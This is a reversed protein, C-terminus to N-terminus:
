LKIGDLFTEIEWDSLQYYWFDMIKLQTGHAQFMRSDKICLSPKLLTSQQCTFQRTQLTKGRVARELDIIYVHPFTLDSSTIVSFLLNDSIELSLFVLDPFITRVLLGTRLDWVQVGPRYEGCSILALPPSLKCDGVFDTKILQSSKYKGELSLSGVRLSSYSGLLLINQQYDLETVPRKEEAVITQSEQGLRALDTRVVQGDSDGTIIITEQVKVGTVEAQHLREDRFVLSFDERDWVSLVGYSSAALIINPSLDLRMTGGSSQCDLVTLLSRTKTDYM